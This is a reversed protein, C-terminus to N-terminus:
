GRNSGSQNDPLSSQRKLRKQLRVYSIMAALQLVVMFAIADRYGTPSFTDQGPDSRWNIIIGALYQFAFASSFVLANCATIVRGSLKADFSQSLVAYALIATTALVNFMIWVPVAFRIPEFLLLIQVGTFLLMGTVCFTMTSIGFRSVWSSLWGVVAYTPILAIAMWTLTTAIEARGMGAVDRLWPGAWLTHLSMFAAQSMSAVPAISWFLPNRFIRGLARVSEAISEPKEDADDRPREPVLLLLLFAVAVTLGGLLLYIGRWDTFGLAFEVPQAAAVVGVSGAMMQLGNIMPLREPPFWMVYAKFAGMLCASVGLGILARGIVLSFSTEARAFIFAGCAAILLLVFEVRRPGYRDLLVGLPLQFLAFSFFYVSTLLGLIAADLQLDLVLDTALVANVARFLYSLFYGLAFPLIIRIALALSM